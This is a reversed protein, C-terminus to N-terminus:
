RLNDSSVDGAGEAFDVIDQYWVYSPLPDILMLDLEELEVPNQGDIGTDSIWFSGEGTHSGILWRHEYDTQDQLATAIEEVDLGALDLMEWRYAESRLRPLVTQVADRALGCRRSSASPTSRSPARRHGGM